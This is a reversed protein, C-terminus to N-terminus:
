KGATYISIIEIRSHGVEKSVIQAAADRTYGQQQLDEMRDQVYGYRLGHYTLPKEEGKYNLRNSTGESTTVRERHRELFKECRNVAQHVKEGKRVFVLGGREIQTIRQSLVERAENSLPVSRHLGGKAEDGVRYIGTKLAQEAQSRKMAVAESIRLGMTRCIPLLDRVEKASGLNDNSGKKAFNEALHCMDKYEKEAWARDGKITPIKELRIDYNKALDANSSLEYRVQPVLDHLYRIASLDSKITKASVGQELRHQVYAVVHKDSLNRLNKMKFNENLFTVFSKCSSEYRARTGYSGSRTHKFLKECQSEIASLGKKASM